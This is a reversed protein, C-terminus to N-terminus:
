YTLLLPVGAKLLSGLTRAFRAGETEAILRGFVPVGLVAADIPLKFAPDRGMRRAALVGAGALLALGSGWYPASDSLAVIFKLGDPLPKGSDIFIPAVSPVLVLLVIATSVMALVVLIAPYVLATRIKGTQEARKELLGAMLELAAGVQGSAEGAKVANVYEGSFVDARKGLADSLSQGDLVGALLGGALARQGASGQNSLLRLSQDLAVDAGRLMAFDRTFSLLGAAGVKAGRAPGVGGAGAQESTEFPTLGRALLLAELAGASPAEHTGEALEGGAGFARYRYLVM